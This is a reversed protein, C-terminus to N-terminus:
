RQRRGGSSRRRLHAITAEQTAQDVGQEIMDVILIGPGDAELRSILDEMTPAEGRALNDRLTGVTWITEVLQRLRDELVAQHAAL